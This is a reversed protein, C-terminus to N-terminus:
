TRIGREKKRRCVFATKGGIVVSIVETCVGGPGPAFELHVRSVCGNINPAKCKRSNLIPSRRPRNMGELGRKRIVDGFSSAVNETDRSTNIGRNRRHLM